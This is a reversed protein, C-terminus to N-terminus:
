EGQENTQQWQPPYYPQHYAQEPTTRRAIRRAPRIPASLQEEQPSQLPENVDEVSVSGDAYLWKRSLVPQEAPAAAEDRERIRRLFGRWVRYPQWRVLYVVFDIVVGGICLLLTVPLWNELVWRFWVSIEANTILGWLGAAASQVWGLLVSFLANAFQGM